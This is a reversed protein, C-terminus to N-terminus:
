ARIGPRVPAAGHEYRQELERRARDYRPHGTKRTTVAWCLADERHAMDVLLASDLCLIASGVGRMRDACASLAVQDTFWIAQRAVLNSLIFAATKGLFDRGCSTNRCFVFGALVQEWFPVLPPTALVVEASPDALLGLRELSHNFLLDADVICLPRRYHGLIEYARVFRATAYYTAKREFAVPGEELSVGIALGPLRARLEDIRELTAAEPAYLHLHLPFRGESTQYLSYALHRVHEEFYVDDCAVFVATGEGEPLPQLMRLPALMSLERAFREPGAEFADYRLPWSPMRGLRYECTMYALASVLPAADRDAGSAVPGLYRLGAQYDGRETEIFGAISRLMANDEFLEPNATMFGCVDEILNMRYLLQIANIFYDYCPHLDLIRALAARMSEALQRPAIRDVWRNNVDSAQNAQLIAFLMTRLARDHEPSLKTNPIQHLLETLQLTDVNDTRIVWEVLERPVDGLDPFSFSSSLADRYYQHLGHLHELGSVQPSQDALSIPM